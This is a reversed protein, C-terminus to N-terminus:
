RSSRSDANTIQQTPLLLAHDAEAREVAFAVAQCFLAMVLCMVGAFLLLSADGSLDRLWALFRM